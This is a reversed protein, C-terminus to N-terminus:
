IETSMRNEINDCVSKIYDKKLKEVQTKEKAHSLQIGKFYIKSGNTFQLAGQAYILISKYTFVVNINM